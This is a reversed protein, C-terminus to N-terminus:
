STCAAYEFSAQLSGSRHGVDAPRYVMFGNGSSDSRDSRIRFMTGYSESPIEDFVTRDTWNQPTFWLEVRGLLGASAGFFQRGRKAIRVAHELVHVDFGYELANGVFRKSGSNM